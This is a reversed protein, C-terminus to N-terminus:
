SVMTVFRQPRPCPTIPVMPLRSLRVTILGDGPVTGVEAGTIKHLYTRLEAAAHQEVVTMWGCCRVQSRWEFWTWRRVWLEPEILGM